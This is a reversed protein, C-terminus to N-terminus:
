SPRDAIHRGLLSPLNSHRGRSVTVRGASVVNLTMSVLQGPRFKVALVFKCAIPEVVWYYLLSRRRTVGHVALFMYSLLVIAENRFGSGILWKSNM